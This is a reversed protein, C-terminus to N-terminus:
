QRTALAESAELFLRRNAKRRTSLEPQSSGRCAGGFLGCIM